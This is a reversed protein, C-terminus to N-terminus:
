RPPQLLFPVFYLEVGAALALLVDAVAEDLLDACPFRELVPGVDDDKIVKTKAFGRVFESGLPLEDDPPRSVRVPQLVFSLEPLVLQLADADVCERAPVEAREVCAYIEHSLIGIPIDDLRGPAGLVLLLQEEDPLLVVPLVDEHNQLVVSPIPCVLDLDEVHLLVRAAGFAGD